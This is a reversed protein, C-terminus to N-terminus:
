RESREEFLQWLEPIYARVRPELEMSCLNETLQNVCTAGVLTCSVSPECLLAAIAVTAPTGGVAEAIERLRPAGKLYSVRQSDDLLDPRRQLRDTHSVSHEYKGTLLGGALPSWAVIGVGLRSAV